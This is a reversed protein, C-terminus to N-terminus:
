RSQVMDKPTWTSPCQGGGTTSAMSVWAFRPVLKPAGWVWSISYVRRSMSHMGHASIAISQLVPVSAVM